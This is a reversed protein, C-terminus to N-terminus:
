KSEIVRSCSFMSENDKALKMGNEFSSYRNRIDKFILQRDLRQFYNYNLYKRKKNYKPLMRANHSEM